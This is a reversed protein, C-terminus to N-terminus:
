KSNLIRSVILDNVNVLQGYGERYDYVLNAQSINPFIERIRNYYDHPYATDIKGTNEVSAIRMLDGKNPYRGLTAIDYLLDIREDSIYGLYKQIEDRKSATTKSTTSKM